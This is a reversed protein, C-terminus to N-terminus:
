QNKSALKATSKEVDVSVDADVDVDGRGHELNTSGDHRRAQKNTAAMLQPQSRSRNGRVAIGSAEFKEGPVELGDGSGATCYLRMEHEGMKGEGLFKLKCRHCSSEVRLTGLVVPWSRDSKGYLRWWSAM